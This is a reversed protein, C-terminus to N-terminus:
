RMAKWSDSGTGAATRCSSPRGWSIARPGERGPHHLEQGTTTPNERRWQAHFHLLDEPLRDYGTYDINYYFADIRRKSMNTLTWRASKHFPM